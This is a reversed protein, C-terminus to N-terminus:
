VAENENHTSYIVAKVSSFIYKNSLRGKRKSCKKPGISINQEEPDAFDVERSTETDTCEKSSSTALTFTEKVSVLFVDKKDVTIGILGEVSLDQEYKLGNRCLTAIAEVLLTKMREQDAHQGEM